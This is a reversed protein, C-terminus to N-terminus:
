DLSPNLEVSGNVQLQSAKITQLKNNLEEIQPDLEAKHKEIEEASFLTTDSLQNLRATLINLQSQINKFDRSM